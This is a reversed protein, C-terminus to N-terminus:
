GWGRLLPIYTSFVSACLTPRLGGLDLNVHIILTKSSCVFIESIRDSIEVSIGLSWTYKSNYVSDAEQYM